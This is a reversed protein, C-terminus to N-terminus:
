EQAAETSPRSERKTKRFAKQVRNAIYPRGTNEFYGALAGSYWRLKKRGRYLAYFDAETLEDFSAASMVPKLADIKKLFVASKHSSYWCKFTTVNGMDLREVQKVDPKFYPDYFLNVKAARRAGEVADSYPLSWDQRRGGWFRKEWPVLKRDLTTQPNLAIVHANPVLGAFTLAAFAGMSTGALVVREYGEFFGSESLAEMQRIIWPDRFWNGANAMVGLHSIGQTACFRYAWPERLPDRDSVNSLNDFTVMLVPRERAIFVMSHLESKRLFGSREGGPMIEQFWAPAAVPNEQTDNNM